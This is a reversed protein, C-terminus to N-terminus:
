EKCKRRSRVRRNFRPTGTPAISAKPFRSRLRRAMDGVPDDLTIASEIVTAATRRHDEDEKLCEALNKEALTPDLKALVERWAVPAHEIVVRLLGEAPGTFDCNYNTVKRAMTDVFPTVAQEVLEPLEEAIIALAIGGFDWSLHDYQELRLSGGKALHALGVEPVMLMLRPPFDVVRGARDAIFKRVLPRTSPRSDLASLLVETDHSMNACDDGIVSDLKDWDLQRLVADYKRPASQYLFHLFFGASQFHRPRVTSIYEAVRHPDIKECMRRAITWQRRTPKLKGVYVDLVDFVRLM